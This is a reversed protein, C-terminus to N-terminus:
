IIEAHGWRAVGGFFNAAGCFQFSFFSDGAM